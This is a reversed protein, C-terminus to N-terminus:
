LSLKSSNLANIRAPGPAGPVRKPSEHHTLASSVAFSRLQAFSGTLLTSSDPTFKIANVLDSHALLDTVKRPRVFEASKKDPNSLYSAHTDFLTVVRSQQGIALYHGDGSVDLSTIPSCVLVFGLFQNKMYDYFLVGPGQAAPMKPLPHLNAFVIEDYVVPNPSVSCPASCMIISPHKAAFVAVSPPAYEPHSGGSAASDSYGHSYQTTLDLVRILTHTAFAPGTLASAQDDAAAWESEWISLRGSSDTILWTCTNPNAPTSDDIPPPRHPSVAITDIRAERHEQSPLSHSYQRTNSDLFFM